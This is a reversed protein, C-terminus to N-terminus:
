GLYIVIAKLLVELGGWFFGLEGVKIKFINFDVVVKLKFNRKVFLVVGVLFGGGFDVM